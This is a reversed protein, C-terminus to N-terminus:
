SCVLYGVPHCGGGPSLKCMELLVKLPLGFHEEHTLSSHACMDLYLNQMVPLFIQSFQKGSNLFSDTVFATMFGTSLKSKYLLDLFFRVLHSSSESDIFVYSCYKICQTKICTLVDRIIGTECVKPSAREENIVRNYLDIIYALALIHRNQYGLYDNKPSKLDSSKKSSFDLELISESTDIKLQLFYQLAVEFYDTQILNTIIDMLIFQTINKYEENVNIDQKMRSLNFDVQFSSSKLSEEKYVNILFTKSILNLITSSVGDLGLYPESHAEFSHDRQRKLSERKEEIDVSMEQKGVDISIADIDMKTEFNDNSSIDLDFNYASFSGSPSSNNPDENCSKGSLQSSLASDSNSNHITSPDTSQATSRATSDSLPVANSSGAM